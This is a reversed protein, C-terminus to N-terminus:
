RVTAAAFLFFARLLDVADMGAAHLASDIDLRDM